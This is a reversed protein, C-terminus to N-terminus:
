IKLDLSTSTNCEQLTINKRALILFDHILIIIYREMMRKNSKWFLINAYLKKSYFSESVDSLNNLTISTDSNYFYDENEIKQQPDAM